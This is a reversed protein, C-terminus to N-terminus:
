SKMTTQFIGSVKKSHGILRKDTNIKIDAPTFNNITSKTENQITCLYFSGIILFQNM